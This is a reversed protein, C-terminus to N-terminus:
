LDPPRRQQGLADLGRFGVRSRYNLTWANPEVYDLLKPEYGMVPVLSETLKLQCIQTNIGWM